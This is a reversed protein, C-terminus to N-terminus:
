LHFHHTISVTELVKAENEFFVDFSRFSFVSPFLRPHVIGPSEFEDVRKDADHFGSPTCSYAYM